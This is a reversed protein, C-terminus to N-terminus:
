VLKSINSAIIPLLYISNNWVFHIIMGPMVSKVKIRMWSALLGFILAGVNLPNGHIVYFIIASVIVVFTNSHKEKFIDFIIGRCLVEEVLPALCCTGIYVFIDFKLKETIGNQWLATRLAVIFVILTLISISATLIRMTGDKRPKVFWSKWNINEKKIYIYLGLLIILYFITAYIKLGDFIIALLVGAIIAVSYISLLKLLRYRSKM